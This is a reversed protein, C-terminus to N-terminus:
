ERTKLVGILDLRDIRRRVLAASVFTCALGILVATGYTSPLIYAPVRYLETDFADTIVSSLLHGVLCGLPLAVFTLLAIQGLLIYSIEYRSFGLVRLTAFERSRESLAIRASNYVVGFAIASAFATFFSIMIMLTEGMTKHFTSIAARRLMVASVPPLDKLDSLLTARKAPDVRLAVMNVSPRDRTLRNLADLRM